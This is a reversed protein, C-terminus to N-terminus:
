PETADSTVSGRGFPTSEPPSVLLSIKPPEDDQDEDQDTPENVHYYYTVVGAVILIAILFSCFMLARGTIQGENRALNATIAVILGASAIGLGLKWPWFMLDLHYQGGVESWITFIAEIAILFEVILLPRLLRNHM